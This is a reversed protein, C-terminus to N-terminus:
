YLIAKLGRLVVRIGSVPRLFLDKRVCYRFAASMGMVWLKPGFVSAMKVTLAILEHPGGPSCKRGFCDLNVQSNALQHFCLRSWAGV